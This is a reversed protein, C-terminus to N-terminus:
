RCSTITSGIKKQDITDYPVTDGDIPTSNLRYYRSCTSQLYTHVSECELALDTMNNLWGSYMRQSARDDQSKITKSQSLTELQVNLMHHEGFKSSTRPSNSSVIPYNPDGTSLGTGISILIDLKTETLTDDGWILGPV